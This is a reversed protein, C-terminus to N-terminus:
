ASEAVCQHRALQAYAIERIVYPESYVRAMRVARTCRLEMKFAFWVLTNTHFDLRLLKM